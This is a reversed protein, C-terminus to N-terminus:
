GRNVGTEILKEKVHAGCMGSYICVYSKKERPFKM